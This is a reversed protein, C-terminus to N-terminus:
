IYVSFNFIFDSSVLCLFTVAVVHSKVVTNLMKRPHAEAALAFGGMSLSSAVMDIDPKSRSELM